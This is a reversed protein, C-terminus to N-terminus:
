RTSSSNTAEGWELNRLAERYSDLGRDCEQWQGYVEMMERVGARALAEELMAAHQAERQSTPNEPHNQDSMATGGPFHLSM